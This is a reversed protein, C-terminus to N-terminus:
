TLFKNAAGEEFLVSVVALNGLGDSHVLHGELPYARGHIRHESPAHFHFQKLEFRHGDIFIYSGPAYDVQISHGNNTVKGAGALYNFSLPKLEAEVMSELDIPSQNSGTACLGNQPTLESWHRAGTKGTYSWLAHDSAQATSIGLLFLVLISNIVQLMYEEIYNKQVFFHM